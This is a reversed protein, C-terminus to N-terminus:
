PVWRVGALVAEVFATKGASYAARHEGCEAALRRKLAAYVAATDAHGRLHDRFRLHRDLERSDQACVYLHHPPLGAPPRFAERGPIGLDGEHVYGIRGLSVAAASLDAATAVIVDIDIIPKSALGPVATSGVHEVRADPLARLVNARLAAFTAPWSPDYPVIEV